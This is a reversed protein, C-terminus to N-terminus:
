EGRSSGTKRATPIRRTATETEIFRRFRFNAAIDGINGLPEFGAGKKSVILGEKRL